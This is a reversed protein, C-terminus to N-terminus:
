GPKDLSNEKEFPSSYIVKDVKVAMPIKRWKQRNWRQTM